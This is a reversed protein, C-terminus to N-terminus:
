LWMLEGDDIKFFKIAKFSTSKVNVQYNEKCNSDLIVQIQHNIEVPINNADKNTCFYEPRTYLCITKFEKTVKQIVNILNKLYFDMRTIKHGLESWYFATLTNFILLAINSYEILISELNHITTYFQTADYIDVVYFNAVTERLAIDLAATETSNQMNSLLKKKIVSFLDDYNMNGDTNLILVGAPVDNYRTKVLADSIIDILLSSACCDDSFVEIIEGCKPGCQFLTPYFNELNPKKTLRALLQVGSEIKFKAASM